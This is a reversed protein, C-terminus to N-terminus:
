AAARQKVTRSIQCFLQPSREVIRRFDQGRIALVECEDLTVISANRPQGLFPATEGLLSGPEVIVPTGGVLLPSDGRYVQVRGKVLVYVTNSQSKERILTSGPEVTKKVAAAALADKLSISAREM